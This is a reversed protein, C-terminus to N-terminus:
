SQMVSYLKDITAREEDYVELAAMWQWIRLCCLSLISLHARLVILANSHIKVAPNFVPRASFHM